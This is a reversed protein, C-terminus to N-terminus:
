AERKEDCKNEDVEDKGRKTTDDRRVVKKAVIAFYGNDNRVVM